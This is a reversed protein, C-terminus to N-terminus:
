AKKAKRRRGFLFAGGMALAAMTAPEPVATVELTPSLGPRLPDGGGNQLFTTWEAGTGGDHIVLDYSQGVQLNFNTFSVDFARRPDTGSVTTGLALLPVDVGYPRVGAGQGGGNASGVDIFPSSVNGVAANPAGNLQIVNDMPSAGMGTQEARDYGVLANLANHTFGGPTHYWISINFVSGPLGIELSTIPTGAADGQLAFWFEVSQQAKAGMPAAMVLTLAAVRGIWATRSKM